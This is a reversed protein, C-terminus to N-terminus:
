PDILYKNVVVVLLDILCGRCTVRLKPINVTKNLVVWSWLKWYGKPFERLQGALKEPFPQSWAGHMYNTSVSSMPSRLRSSSQQAVWVYM